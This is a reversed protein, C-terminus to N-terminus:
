AAVERRSARAQETELQAETLRKARRCVQRYFRLQQARGVLRFGLRPILPGSRAARSVGHVRFEVDGSDLWKRLEYRMEGEEFHGQLTRYSWGYRLLPRGDLETREESPDGVRVGVRFRLPGYHIKLLIDRGALPAGPDFVGDVIRPDALQYDDMMRKAVEWSGGPAPAGPAEHPLPEVMEDIRKARAEDNTKIDMEAQIDVLSGCIRVPVGNADYSAGGTARFWRPKGDPMVIRYKVDYAGQNKVDKIAAAFATMIRDVDEPYIRSSWSELKDPYAEASPYGVVRRFEPTWTVRTVM